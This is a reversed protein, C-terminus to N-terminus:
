HSPKPSFWNENIINELRILVDCTMDTDLHKIRSLDAIRAKAERESIDLKSMLIEIARALKAEPSLDEYHEIKKEAAKRAM